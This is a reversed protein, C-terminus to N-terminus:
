HTADVISEVLVADTKCCGPGACDFHLAYVGAVAGCVVVECSMLSTMSLDGVYPGRVTNVLSATGSTVVDDGTVRVGHGEGSDSNTDPGM